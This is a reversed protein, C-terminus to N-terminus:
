LLVNMWHEAQRNRECTSPPFWHPALARIRAKLGLGQRRGYLIHQTLEPSLFDRKLLVHRALHLTTQPFEKSTLMSHLCTFLHISISRPFAAHMGYM